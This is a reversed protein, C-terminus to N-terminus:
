KWCAVLIAPTKNSQIPQQIRATCHMRDGAKINAAIAIYTPDVQPEPRTFRAGGNRCVLWGPRGNIGVLANPYKADIARCINGRLFKSISADTAHAFAPYQITMLLLTAILANWKKM